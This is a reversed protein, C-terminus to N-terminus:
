EPSVSDNEEVKGICFGIIELSFEQGGDLGRAMSLLKLKPEVGDEWLRHLVGEPVVEVEVYLKNDRWEKGVVRGTIKDLHIQFDSKEVVWIARTKEKLAAGVMMRVGHNSRRKIEEVLSKPFVVEATKSPWESSM